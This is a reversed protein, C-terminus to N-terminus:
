LLTMLIWIPLAEHILSVSDLQNLEDAQNVQMLALEIHDQKRKEFQSYDNSM